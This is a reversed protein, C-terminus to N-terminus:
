SYSPNENIPPIINPINNSPGNFFKLIVVNHTIENREAEENTNM